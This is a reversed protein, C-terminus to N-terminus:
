CGSTANANFIHINEKVELQGIEHSNMTAVEMLHILLSGIFVEEDGWFLFFGYYINSRFYSIM